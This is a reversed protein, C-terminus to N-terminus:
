KVPTFAQAEADSSVVIEVEALTASRALASELLRLTLQAARDLPVGGVGSGVPPLALTEIALEEVRRLGNTLGRELAALDCVEGPAEVVVHILFDSPHEESPTIVAGGLPVSGIVALRGALLPGAALELERGAPTLASLDSRVPRLIAEAKSEALSGRRVTIM